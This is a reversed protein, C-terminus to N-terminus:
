RGLLVIRIDRLALGLRGRSGEPAYVEPNVNFHLLQYLRPDDPADAMRPLRRKMAAIATGLEADSGSSSGDITTSRATPLSLRIPARICGRVVDISHQTSSRCGRARRGTTSTSPTRFTIRAAPTSFRRVSGSIGSPKEIALYFTRARRLGGGQRATRATPVKLDISFSLERGAERFPWPARGEVLWWYAPCVPLIAGQQPRPHDSDFWIGVERGRVQVATGEASQRPGRQFRVLSAGQAPRFGTYQGVDWSLMAADADKGMNAIRVHFRESSPEVEGIVCDDVAEPGIEPQRFITEIIRGPRQEVPSQGIRGAGPTTGTRGEQQARALVPGISIAVVLSCLAVRATM